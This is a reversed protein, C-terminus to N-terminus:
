IIGKARLFVVILMIIIMVAAVALTPNAFKFFDQQQEYFEIFVPDIIKLKEYQSLERCLEKEQKKVIKYREKRTKPDVPPPPIM